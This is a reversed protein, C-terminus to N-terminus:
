TGMWSNQSVFREAAPVPTYARQIISPFLDTLAWVLADVRDPSFSKRDRLSDQTVEVMQDELVPLSGVHHVRGQEYLASIPEARVYKGRTAQVLTIPVNRDATRITTEVM